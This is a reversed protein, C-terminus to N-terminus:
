EEKVLVATIEGIYMRHFDAAPYCLAPIEGSVFDEATLWTSLQKKCLLVTQAQEIYPIGDQYAPTFGCHSLKDGDRGSNRGCYMVEQEYGEGMFCLSYGQAAEIIPYTYRQPRVYVTTVCRNWLYGMQGWNVTMTNLKGGSEATLLPMGLKIFDFVNQTLETAPITKFSM